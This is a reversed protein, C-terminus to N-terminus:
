SKLSFVFDSNVTNFYKLGSQGFKEALEPKTILCAVPHGNGMSKGVVLFDPVLEIYLYM